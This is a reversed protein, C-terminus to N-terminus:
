KENTLVNYMGQADAVTYHLPPIKRDKYNGIGIVIAYRILPSEDKVFGNIFIGTRKSM